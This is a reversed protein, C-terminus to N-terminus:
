KARPNTGWPPWFFLCPPPVRLSDWGTNQGCLGPVWLAFPPFPFYVRRVLGCFSGPPSIFLWWAGWLLPPFCMSPPCVCCLFHRPSGCPFFLDARVVIFEQPPSVRSERGLFGPDWWTTGVGMFLPGKPGRVFHPPVWPHCWFTHKGRAGLPTHFRLVGRSFSRCRHLGIVLRTPPVVFFPRFLLAASM